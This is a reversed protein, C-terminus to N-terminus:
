VHARGIECRRKGRGRRWWRGGGRGPRRPPAGDMWQRRWGRGDGGRVVLVMGDMRGVELAMADVARGVLCTTQHRARGDGRQQQKESTGAAGGSGEGQQQKEKEVGAAAEGSGEAAQQKKKEGRSM